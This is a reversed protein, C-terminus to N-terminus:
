LTTDLPARTVQGPCLLLHPFSVPGQILMSAKKRGQVRSEGNDVHPEGMDEERM